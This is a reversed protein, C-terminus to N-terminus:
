SGILVKCIKYLDTYTENSVLGNEAIYNLFATKTDLGSIKKAWRQNSILVSLKFATLLESDSTNCDTHESIEIILDIANDYNKNVNSEFYSLMSVLDSKSFKVKLIKSINKGLVFKVYDETRELTLNLKKYDDDSNIILECLVINEASDARIKFLCVSDNEKAYVNFSMYSDSKLVDLSYKIPTVKVGNPLKGLSSASDKSLRYERVIDLADRYRKEKSQVIPKESDESTTPRAEKEVTAVVPTAVPKRSMKSEVRNMFDDYTIQIGNFHLKNGKKVLLMSSKLKQKFDKDCFLGYKVKNKLEGNSDREVIKTEKNSVFSQSVELMVLSSDDRRVFCLELNDDENAIIYEDGSRLNAILKFARGDLRDNPESVVDNSKVLKYFDTESLIEKGNSDLKALTALLRDTNKNYLRNNVLLWKPVEIEITARLEVMNEIDVKSLNSGKDYNGVQSFPLYVSKIKGTDTYRFHTQVSKDTVYGINFRDIVFNLKSM